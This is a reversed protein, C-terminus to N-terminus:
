HSSIPIDIWFGTLYNNSIKASLNDSITAWYFLSDETGNIEIFVVSHRDNTYINPTIDFENHKTNVERFEILGKVTPNPKLSYLDSLKWWKRSINLELSSLAHDQNLGLLLSGGDFNISYAIKSNVPDAIYLYGDKISEEFNM